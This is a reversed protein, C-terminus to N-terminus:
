DDDIEGCAVRGGSDGTERTEEDPGSANYRAPINAFNDPGAHIMVASGDDASLDDLKFRDTTVRVTATGNRKVLLSSLDGTHEGHDQGEAEGIHGQASKFDPGQCRGVAHVHFGHFGPQLGRLRAEVDVTGFRTETMRVNGIENGKANVIDVRLQSPQAIVAGSVLVAGLFAVGGALLHGTRPSRLGTRPRPLFRM